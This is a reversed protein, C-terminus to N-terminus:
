LQGTIIDIPKNCFLLMLIRFPDVVCITPWYVLLLLSLILLFPFFIASVVDHAALQKMVAWFQIPTWGLTKKETTDFDFANKRVEIVSRGLIDNM